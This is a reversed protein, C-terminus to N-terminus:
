RTSEETIKKVSTESLEWMSAKQKERVSKLALQIDVVSRIAFPFLSCIPSDADPRFLIKVTGSV